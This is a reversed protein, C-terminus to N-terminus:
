PRATLDEELPAVRAVGDTMDVIVVSRWGSPDPDGGSSQPLARLVTRRGGREVAVQGPTTASLPLTVSASLGIFSADGAPAGSETRELYRFALHILVGSLAGAATAFAAVTAAGGGTLSLVTGAAGFGFLVYVLTRLSFLKSAHTDHGQGDGGLDTDLDVEAGAGDLVDGLLSVALFGGGLVLSFVYLAFM